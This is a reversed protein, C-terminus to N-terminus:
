FDVKNYFICIRYENENFGNDHHYIRLQGYSGGASDYIIAIGPGSTTEASQQRWFGDDNKASGIACIFNNDTVPTNSALDVTTSNTTGSVLNGTVISTRVNSVIGAKMQSTAVAMAEEMETLQEEIENLEDTTSLPIYKWQSGTHVGIVDKSGVSLGTLISGKSGDKNSPTTHRDAIKILSPNVDVPTSEDYHEGEFNFQLSSPIDVKTEEPM